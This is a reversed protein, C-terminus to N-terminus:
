PRGEARCEGHGYPRSEQRARSPDGPPGRFPQSRSRHLAERRRRPPHRRAVGHLRFLPASHGNRDHDRLGSRRRHPQDPAALGGHDKRDHDDGAGRALPRDDPLTRAARGPADRSRSRRPAAKATRKRDPGHGPKRSRGRGRARRSRPRGSRRADSRRRTRRRDGRSKAPRRRFGRRAAASDRDADRSQPSHRRGPRVLPLRAAPESCRRGQFGRHQVSATVVRLDPQTEHPTGGALKSHIRLTSVAMRACNRLFDRASQFHVQTEKDEM